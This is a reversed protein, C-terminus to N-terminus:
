FKLNWKNMISIYSILPSKCILKTDGYEGIKSYNSILELLTKTTTTEKLNEIYIIIDGTFLSLVIEEKGIQM